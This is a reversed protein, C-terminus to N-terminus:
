SSQMVQGLIDKLQDICASAHKQAAPTNLEHSLANLQNDTRTSNGARMAQDVKALFSRQTGTPTTNCAQVADMLDKLNKKHGPPNTPPGSPSTPSPSCNSGTCQNGPNTTGPGKPNTAQLSPAHLLFPAVFAGIGAVILAIAGLRRRNLLNM